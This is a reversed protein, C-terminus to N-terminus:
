LDTQSSNIVRILWFVASESYKSEKGSESLGFTSGIWSSWGRLWDKISTVFRLNLFGFGVEVSGGFGQHATADNPKIVRQKRVDPVRV